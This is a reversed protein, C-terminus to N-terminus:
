IRRMSEPYSDPGEDTLHDCQEVTLLETRNWIDDFLEMTDFYAPNYRTLNEKVGLYYPKKLM